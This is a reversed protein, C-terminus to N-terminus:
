RPIEILDGPELLPDEQGRLLRKPDVKYVQGQRIVKIQWPDLAGTYQAAVLAQSLTLNEHWPVRPHRVMGRVFVSPDKASQAELANQQGRRFAAAEREKSKGSCGATAVLVIAALFGLLTKM